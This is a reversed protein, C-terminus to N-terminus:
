FQEFQRWMWWLYVGCHTTKSHYHFRTFGARCKGTDIPLSCVDVTQKEQGIINFSYIDSSYKYECMLKTLYHMINKM